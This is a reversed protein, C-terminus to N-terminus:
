SLGIDSPDFLKEVLDDFDLPRTYNRDSYVNAMLKLYATEGDYSYWEILVNGYLQDVPVQQNRMLNPKLYHREVCEIGKPKEDYKRDSTYLQYNQELVKERFYDFLFVFHENPIGSLQNFYFGNSQASRYSFFGMEPINGELKAQAFHVNLFELAERFKVSSKWMEYKKLFAANRVVAESVFPQNSAGEEKGFIKQYIQQFFDASM